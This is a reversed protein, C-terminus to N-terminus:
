ALAAAAMLSTWTSQGVRGNIPLNARTQFSKVQTALSTSYSGTVAVKTKLVKALARQISSVAPQKSGIKFVALDLRNELGLAVWTARDVIGTIPLSAKQQLSSVAKVTGSGYIGDTKLKQKGVLGLTSNLRKQVTSVMVGTHKRELPLGPILAVEAATTPLLGQVRLADLQQRLFLAYENQGSNSLHVWCCLSVNDFLRWQNPLSSAANWDLVTIAPNTNAAVLLYSNAIAYSRLTSRTSMTVFIMRQVGKSTLASIMQSLEANFTFPDDNYGLEIIAIAPAASSNVVGVGDLDLQPSAVTFLCDLGAMGRGACAQFNINPYAPTVVSAIEASAGESVSDGIYLISGVPAANPDNAEIAVTDYWPANLDFDSRFQWGTRTVTAATGTIAVSTAYGNWEGGLGDHTTTISLLVGITPYVKQISSATILRSWTQLAADSILDGDDSKAEFQGSATRGGNSSTFETRVVSNKSDKYVYSATDTIARDTRSDEIIVTTGGINKLAAGGYVQCDQTDCTKAYSYRAESISYSRAAVSQARLANIGLGNATDGWGAPSERPVVGRLYSELPVVNVTRLAANKDTVARVAGRYYRVRGNKYASTAPECVGLLDTPAVAAPLASNTSVFEIPGSVATAVRAMGIPTGSTTPCAAIPSGYIDYMNNGVSLAVLAGYTEPRGLWSATVNDSIVSTQKADLTQLRVTMAGNETLAADAQTLTSLTRGNGGYYFNLIDQWSYNLKTAWGLAGYQSMGRGHGNGRGRILVAIPPLSSAEAPEIEHQIVLPTVTAVVLLCVAVLKRRHRTTRM